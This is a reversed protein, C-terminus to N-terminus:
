NQMNYCEDKRERCGDGISEVGVWLVLCFIVFFIQEKFVIFFVKNFSFYLYM